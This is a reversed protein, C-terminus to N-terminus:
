AGEGGQLNRLGEIDNRDKASLRQEKLHILVDPPAVRYAHGLREIRVSREIGEALDGDALVFDLALVDNDVVKSLRRIRVTKFDMPLPAARYGLDALAPAVREWDEPRVLLDIDETNRAEVWISYALGGILAHAIGAEDLRTVVATLEDFLDVM